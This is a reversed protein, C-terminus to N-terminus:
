IFLNFFQYPSTSFGHLGTSAFFSSGFVSDSISLPAEIYEYCQFCTFIIAILITILNGEINQKRQGKVLSHHAFTVFAGSTILLVTNILPIGFASLAEIGLPPWSGGIEVTPSLASHFYAWFVSLFAFAESIIFLVIGLAIGKVVQKTHAGLLTSETTIDRFWLVMCYVTLIFGLITYLGSNSFGHMYLVTSLALLFLSFSQFFPWPSNPLLHYPNLQFLSRKILNM